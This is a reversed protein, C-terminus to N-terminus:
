RKLKFNNQSMIWLPRIHGSTLLVIMEALCVMYEVFILKGNNWIM